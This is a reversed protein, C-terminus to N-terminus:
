EGFFEKIRRQALSKVIHLGNWNNQGKSMSYKTYITKIPYEGITLGQRKAHWLMESCFEFGSTHWKINNLAKNSFIRLGSQSDTVNVGYLIYTFIGLGKNGITKIKSMGKNNIMRSGILLDIPQKQITEIGKLLDDPKHQGDADMTAVMLFNNQRAYNLGTATAGGVGINIIHRIVKAGAKEAVIHTNDTSGDDVVIIEWSYDKKGLIKKLDTIVEAVM